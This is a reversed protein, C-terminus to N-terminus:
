PKMVFTFYLIFPLAIIAAFIAAQALDRAFSRM